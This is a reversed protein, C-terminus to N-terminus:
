GGGVLTVIEIRDGAELVREAHQARPVIAKNIEVAVQSSALGRAEVLGALTTGQAATSADGNVYISIEDTVSGM